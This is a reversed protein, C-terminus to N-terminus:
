VPLETPDEIENENDCDVKFNQIHNLPIYVFDTGNFLVIM